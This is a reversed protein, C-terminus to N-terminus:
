SKTNLKVVVQFANAGEIIHVEVNEIKKIEEELNQVEKLADERTLFEKGEGYEYPRSTLTHKYDM